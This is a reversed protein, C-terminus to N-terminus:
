CSRLAPVLTAHGARSMLGSAPVASRRVARLRALGLGAFGILMMAWTSTEPASATTTVSPSIPEFTGSLGFVGGGASNSVTVSGFQDFLTADTRIIAVDSVAGTALPTQSFFFLTSGDAQRTAAALPDTASVFEMLGTAVGVDTEVDSFDAVTFDAINGQAAASTLSVQYAFDLTGDTEKYVAEDLAGVIRDPSNLSGFTFPTTIHGVLSGTETVSPLSVAGQGPAIPTAKAADLFSAGSALLVLAPVIRKM